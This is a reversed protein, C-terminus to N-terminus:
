IYNMSFNAFYYVMSLAGRIVGCIVNSYHLASLNEPLEVYDNLPNDPLILSFTIPKDKEATFGQVDCKVGLFM